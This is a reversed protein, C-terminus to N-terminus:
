PCIKNELVTEDIVIELILYSESVQIHQIIPTERRTYVQLPHTANPTQLFTTILSSQPTNLMFYLYKFLDDKYDGGLFYPKYFLLNLKLLISM